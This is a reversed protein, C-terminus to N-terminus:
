AEAAKSAPGEAHEGRGPEILIKSIILAAV